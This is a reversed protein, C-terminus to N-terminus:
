RKKKKRKWIFSVTVMIILLTAISSYLMGRKILAIVSLIVAGAFLTYLYIISVVGFTTFFSERMLDKTHIRKKNEFFKNVKVAVCAGVIGSLIMFVWEPEFWYDQFFQNIPKEFQITANLLDDAFNSFSM